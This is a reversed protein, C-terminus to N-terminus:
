HLTYSDGHHIVLASATNMAASAGTLGFHPSVSPMLGLSSPLARGELLEVNLRTKWNPRAAAVPKRTRVFAHFLNSLSQMMPFEKGGQRRKRSL